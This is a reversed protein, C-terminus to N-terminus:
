MIIKQDAHENILLQSKNLFFTMQKTHYQYVQIHTMHM